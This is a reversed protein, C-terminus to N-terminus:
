AASGMRKTSEIDQNLIDKCSCAEKCPIGTIKCGVKGQRDQMLLRTLLNIEGVMEAAIKQSKEAKQQWWLAATDKGM